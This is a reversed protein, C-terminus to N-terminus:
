DKGKGMVKRNIGRMVGDMYVNFFWQSMVYVQRLGVNVPFWESMDMGARVSARSGLYFEASSEVIKRWSWVMGNLRIM